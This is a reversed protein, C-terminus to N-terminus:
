RAEAIAAALHEALEPTAAVVGSWRRTLDVDIELPRGFADVVAGGAAPVTVMAAVLDVLRHTDTGADAFADISGQAVLASELCSTSLM